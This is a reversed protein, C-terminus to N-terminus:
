LGDWVFSYWYDNTASGSTGHTIFGKNGTYVQNNTGDWVVSYLDNNADGMLIMIDDSNTSSRVKVTKVAAGLTDLQTANADFTNTTASYKKLRPRNSPNNTDAYIVIGESGNLGEYALDFSRQIGTDTTTTIVNNTPTSWEPENTSDFCTIDNSEDKDCALFTVAGKRGGDLEMAGVVEMNDTKRSNSWSGSGNGNATWIKISMKKDNNGNTYILAGYLPNHASWAFESFEKTNTPTNTAHQTVSSWSSGNFYTTNTDSVQDFVALMAENSGPRSKLTVNVPIGGVNATTAAASWASGNWTRYRPTNSNNSYVVMLNGNNLYTADFNKIGQNANNFASSNWSDFQTSSWTSGDYVHAYMYQRSGDYHRAIAIKENRTSSAYIRVVRLAKNTTTVDIDPLATVPGWQDNEHQLIRYKVADTSGNGDAFILMGGISKQWNTLYTVFSISEPRATTFDWTVTSTIKKTSTDVTGGSSVINGNPPIGDRLANEIAITRQYPKGVSLTHDTGSFQWTGGVGRTVGTQATNSLNNYGQNKISRVAEIGESAYESAITFELGLRNANYAQIMSIVAGSSFVIFIGSALIVELISFGKKNKFSQLLRLFYM